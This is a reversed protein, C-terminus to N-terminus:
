HEITLAKAKKGDIFDCYGIIAVHLVEAAMVAILSVLTAVGADTNALPFQQM